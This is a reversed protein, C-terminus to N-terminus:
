DINKLNISTVFLLSFQKLLKLPIFIISAKNKELLDRDENLFM